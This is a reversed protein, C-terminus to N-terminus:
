AADWQPLDQLAIVDLDRERAVEMGAAMAQAGALTTIYSVGHRVAAMRLEYSDDRTMFGYPTNIILAIDGNAIRDVINSSGEYLKGIEECEVGVARLARATGSTAVIRFGLRAIDRIIPVMSRKDRDNVSVFVTGETPLAYSIALQTKMYAAPFNRAIGMVEGTSKM